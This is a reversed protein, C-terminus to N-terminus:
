LVRYCANQKNREKYYRVGEHHYNSCNLLQLIFVSDTSCHSQLILYHLNFDTKVDEGRYVFVNM